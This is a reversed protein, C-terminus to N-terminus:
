AALAAAIRAHDIAGEVMRLAGKQIVAFANGLDIAEDIVNTAVLVTKGERVVLQQKIFTRLEAAYLPDLLRTPEDLLLIDPAKLLARAVAVRQRQGASLDSFRKTQQPALALIELTENIRTRLRGFRLGELRGFFQLNEVITLRPYFGREGGSYALKQLRANRLASAKSSGCLSVEGSTFSALGAVVKLLTTKGAGNAGLLVTCSGHAVSLSVNALVTREPAQSRRLIGIRQPWIKTVDSVVIPYACDETAFQM